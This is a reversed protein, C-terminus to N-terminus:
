RRRRKWMEPNILNEPREGALAAMVREAAQEATRLLAEESSGASHPTLVVNPLSLLPHDLTMEESEYVDLAAGGLEGRSLAAVLAAEDVLRGRATNILIAGPKMLELERASILRRTEKRLTRHLTVFDAEELLVELSGSSRYGCARLEAPDASTSHVVVEMGFGARAIAAVRRGIGGYGVVGLVKGSIDTLSAHYKFDFDARRTAADAAPVRKAVALMLAITHEAVSDRNADPTNAVAIGLVEAHDLAIADVGIGHSVVMRLRPAHDMAAASLGASRTIVANAEVIEACVTEMDARSALRTEIGAARLRELGASHIPQVVLCLSM